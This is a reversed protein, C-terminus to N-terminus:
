DLTISLKQIVAKSRAAEAKVFKDLGQVTSDSPPSQLGLTKAYTKYTADSSVYSAIAGNLRELMERSTKRPTFVGIWAQCDFGPVTDAVPAAEPLADSRTSSNGLAVLKGSQVFGLVTASPEFAIDIVGSVLDPTTGSRYPVHKMKTNTMSQLLEMCIHGGSGIGYSAYNIVDPNQKAKAVLGAVDRVGLKPNGVLIYGGGGLHGVPILDDAFSYKLKSFVFPNITAVNNAAVLLTMGDAPSLAASEAAINGGAGVKNDVVATVGLSTSLHTGLSRAIMDVATGAPGSAIVKMTGGKTQAFSVPTALISALLVWRTVRSARCRTKTRPDSDDSPLLSQGMHPTCALRTLDNPQPM